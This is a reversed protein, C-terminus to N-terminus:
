RALSRRRLAFDSAAVLALVASCAALAYGPPLIGAGALLVPGAAVLALAYIAVVAGRRSLGLRVLRHSIHNHDGHWPAAGRRLRILIVSAIDYAPVGLAVLPVLANYLHDPAHPAVTAQTGTWLCLASALFGIFFSGADGMFISAPPFNFFLFGVLAGLGILALWAAQDHGALLNLAGLLLLAVAATGASLGDMNDLFNLANTMTVLWFVSLAAALGPDAVSLRCEPYFYVLLCAVAVQAAFRPLPPLTFWDDALGLVFLAFAGGLIAFLAPSAGPYPLLAACLVTALALAIGGGYPTPRQHSKHIGADPRDVLGVRWALRKVGPISLAALGCSLVCPM